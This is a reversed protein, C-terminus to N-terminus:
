RRVEGLRVSVDELPVVNEGYFELNAWERIFLHHPTIGWPAVPQDSVIRAWGNTNPAKDYFLVRSTSQNPDLEFTDEQVISGDSRLWTLTVQATNSGRNVLGIVPTDGPDEGWPRTQWVAATWTTSFGSM